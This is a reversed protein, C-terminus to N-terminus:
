QRDLGHEVLRSLYDNTTTLQRSVGQVEAEVRSMRAGLAGIGVHLEHRSPPEKAGQELLSVRKGHDEFDKDGRELRHEIRLVIDSIRKETAVLEAKTAAEAKSAFQSRLWLVICAVAIPTLATLIPWIATIYELFPM